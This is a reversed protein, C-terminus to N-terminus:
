WFWSKKVPVPPSREIKAFEEVRVQIRAVNSKINAWQSFKLKQLQIQVNEDNKDHSATVIIYFKDEVDEPIFWSFAYPLVFMGERINELFIHDQGAQSKQIKWRNRDDVRKKPVVYCRFYVKELPQPATGTVYIFNEKGVEPLKSYKSFLLQEKPTRNLDISSVDLQTPGTLLINPSFPNNPNTTDCSFQVKCQKVKPNPRPSPEGGDGDQMYCMILTGDNSTHGNKWAYYHVVSSWGSSVDVPVGMRVTTSRNVNTSPFFLRRGSSDATEAWLGLSWGYCDSGEVIMVPFEEEEMAYDLTVEGHYVNTGTYSAPNNIKLGIDLTPALTMDSSMVSQSTVSSPPQPYTEDSSDSTGTAIIDYTKGPPLAQPTFVFPTSVYFQDTAVVDQQVTLSGATTSLQHAIFATEYGPSTDSQVYYMRFNVATTTILGTGRV